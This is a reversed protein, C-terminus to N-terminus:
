FIHFPATGIMLLPSDHAFIRYGPGPMVRACTSRPGHLLSGRSRRVSSCQTSIAVTARPPWGPQAAVPGFFSHSTYSDQAAQSPVSPPHLTSPSFITRMRAMPPSPGPGDQSSSGSAASTTAGSMAPASDTGFFSRSSNSANRLAFTGPSSVRSLGSALFGPCGLGHSVQAMTPEPDSSAPCLAPAAMSACSCTHRSFVCTTCSICSSRPLFVVSTM